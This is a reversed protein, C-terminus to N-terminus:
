AAGGEEEPEEEMLHSAIEGWNVDNVFAVAWDRALGETTTEEIHGIVEDRLQDALDQADHTWPYSSCDFFELNVRWTEYNTWGNYNDNM